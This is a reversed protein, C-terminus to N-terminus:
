FVNWAINKNLNSWFDDCANSPISEWKCLNFPNTTYQVTTLYRSYYYYYYVHIAAHINWFNFWFLLDMYKSRENRINWFNFWFLESNRVYKSIMLSKVKVYVIERLSLRFRWPGCISQENWAQLADCLDTNRLACLWWIAGVIIGEASVNGLLHRAVLGRNDIINWWFPALM